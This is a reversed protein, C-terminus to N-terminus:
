QNDYMRTFVIYMEGGGRAGGAVCTHPSRRGCREQAPVESCMPTLWADRCVFCRPSPPHRPPATSGGDGRHECGRIQPLQKQTPRRGTRFTSILRPAPSVGFPTPRADRTSRYEGRGVRIRSVPDVAALFNGRLANRILIRETRGM